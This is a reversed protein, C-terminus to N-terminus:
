SPKRSKSASKPRPRGRRTSSQDSDSRGIPVTAVDSPVTHDSPTRANGPLRVVLAHRRDPGALPREEVFMCDSLHPFGAPRDSLDLVALVGLRLDNQAYATTQRLFGAVAEDTWPILLRKVEIVFRFAPRVPQALYIDARGSAVGPREVEVEGQAVLFSALDDQLEHELPANGGNEIRRLYKFRSGLADLRTQCFRVLLLALREFRLRPVGSYDQNGAGSLQALVQEYLRQGALSLDVRAFYAEEIRVV